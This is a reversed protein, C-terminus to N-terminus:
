QCDGRKRREDTCSPRVPVVTPAIVPAPKVASVESHSIPASAPKSVTAPRAVVPAPRAVVVPHAVVVVASVPNFAMFLALAIVTKKM